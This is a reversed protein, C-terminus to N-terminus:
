TAFSYGLTDDMKWGWPEFVPCHVEPASFKNEEVESRLKPFLLHSGLIPIPWFMNCLMKQPSSRHVFPLLACPNQGMSAADIVSNFTLSRQSEHCRATPRLVHFMCVYFYTRASTKFVVRGDVHLMICHNFKIRKARKLALGCPAHYHEHPLCYSGRIICSADWLIQQFFCLFGMIFRHFTKAHVFECGLFELM